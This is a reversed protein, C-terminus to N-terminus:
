ETYIIEVDPGVGLEERKFKETNLSGKITIKELSDCNRFVSSGITEVSAPIVIKRLSYCGIFAYNGITKLNESLEIEELSTCNRFAGVNEGGVIETITDPLIIKKVDTVNIGMIAKTNTGNYGTAVTIGVKTVTQGNYTSPVIITDLGLERDIITGSWVDYYDDSDILAIAGTAEDFMFWEEGTEELSDKTNGAFALGLNTSTSKNEGYYILYYDMNETSDSTVSSATIQRQELVYVDGTEINGNGTQMGRGMLNTVNVSNDANVYGDTKLRELIATGSGSEIAEMQYDAVKLQLQEYVSANENLVVATQARSFIGNQGITLSIAVGALILLVIINLINDITLSYFFLSSYNELGAQGEIVNM